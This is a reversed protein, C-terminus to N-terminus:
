FFFIWLSYTNIEYFCENEAGTDEPPAMVLSGHCLVNIDDGVHYQGVSDLRFQEDDNEAGANRRLLYLNGSM